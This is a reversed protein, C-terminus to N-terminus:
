AKGFLLITKEGQRNSGCKSWNGSANLVFHDAENTCNATYLRNYGMVNVWHNVANNVEEQNKCLITVVRKYTM